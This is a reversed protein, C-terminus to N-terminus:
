FVDLYMSPLNELILDSRFLTLYCHLVRRVPLFRLKKFPLLDAYGLNPVTAMQAGQSVAQALFRRLLQLREEPALENWLVDEVLLCKTSHRDLIPLIYGTLIGRRTGESTHALVGGERRACQWEAEEIAWRRSLPQSLLLPAALELFDNPANSSSPALDEGFAGPKLVSAMYRVSFLRKVSLQLRRCCGEVIRNMPEGDVCFNLMGDFGQARARKVLESWLVVGYGSKKYKPLVSLFSSTILNLPHGKFQVRRAFGSVFGILVDNEYLAPALSMSAGPATLFSELFEASYCLGQQSNEAWSQQVVSALSHFDGRFDDISRRTGQVTTPDKSLLLLRQALQVEGRFVWAFFERGMIDNMSTFATLM